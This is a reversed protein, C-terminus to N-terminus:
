RAPAAPPGSAAPSVTVRFVWRIVEGHHEAEIGYCGLTPVTLSSAQLRPGPGPVDYADYDVSGSGDLREGVVRLGGAGVLYWPVKVDYGAHVPVANATTELPLLVWLGGRGFADAAASAGALATLRRPARARGLPATVPCSGRSVKHMSLRLPAAGGCGALALIAAAVARSPRV